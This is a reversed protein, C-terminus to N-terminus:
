CGKGKKPPKMPMKKPPMDKMPMPKPSPKKSAM